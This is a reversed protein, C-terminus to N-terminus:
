TRAPLEVEEFNALSAAFKVANDIDEEKLQPYADLIQQKTYGHGLLNLILSVPIRTGKIVPKGCLIKPNIEIRKWKM